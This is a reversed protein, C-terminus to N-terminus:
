RGRTVRALPAPPRPIRPATREPRPLLRADVGRARTRASTTATATRTSPPVSGRLGSAPDVGLREYLEAVVAPDVVLEEFVLSTSSIARSTGRSASSTTSTAAAPSTRRVALGLLPRPGVPPRGGGVRPARRRAPPGRQRARVSFRYNSIARRVPDRVVVIM